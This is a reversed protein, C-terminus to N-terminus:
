CVILSACFLFIILSHLTFIYSHSAHRASENIYVYVYIYAEWTASTTFFSPVAVWELIRAQFIGHGPCGPPSCDMPEWLTLCFQISKVCVCECMYTCVYVYVIVTSVMKKFRAKVSFQIKFEKMIHIIKAFYSKLYLIHLKRENLHAM